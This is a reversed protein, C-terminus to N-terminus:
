IRSLLTPSLYKTCPIPLSIASMYVYVLSGSIYMIPYQQSLSIANLDLM